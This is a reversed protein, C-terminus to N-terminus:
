LSQPCNGTPATNMAGDVRNITSIAACTSKCNADSAHQYLNLPASCSVSPGSTNNIDYCTYSCTCSSPATFTYPATLSQICTYTTGTLSVVGLGTTAAITGNPSGPINPVGAILDNAYASTSLGVITAAIASLFILKSQLM